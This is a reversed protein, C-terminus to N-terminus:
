NSLYYIKFNIVLLTNHFLTLNSKKNKKKRVHNEQIDTEEEIEKLKHKKIKKSSVNGYEGEWQMASM